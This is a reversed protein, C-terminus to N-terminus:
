VFVSQLLQFGELDGNHLFFQQSYFIVSIISDPSCFMSIVAFGQDQGGPGLAVGLSQLLQFFIFAAADAVASDAVAKKVTPFFNCDKPVARIGKM